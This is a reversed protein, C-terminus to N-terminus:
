PLPIPRHGPVCGVGSHNAPPSPELRRFDMPSIGGIRRFMRTFHAPDDYGVRAAIERISLNTTLLLDKSVDFHLEDLLGRFSLRCERLRRALTRPSTDMLEAAFRKPPIGEALYPLLLVRLRDAFQLENNLSIDPHRGLDIADPPPTSLVNRPISIYGREQGTRIRSNSFCIAAAKPIHNSEIGIEEPFWHAGLYHRILALYAPLQYGQSSMYGPMSKLCPYHTYLLIDDKREEIGLGLDSAESSILRVLEHLGRYLTPAHESRQLLIENIGNEGHYQGVHWGFGEGEAKAASDFAAWASSVKVYMDPNDAYAPLGGARLHRRAPAGIVDLFTAFALPHAMRMIPPGDRRRPGKYVNRFRTVPDLSM